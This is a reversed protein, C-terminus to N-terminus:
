RLRSPRAWVSRSQGAPLIFHIAAGGSALNEARVHGHHAQVISRVIALGLGMGEARTTFFSEFLLAMDEPKIGHGRDLVSVQVSEGHRETRLTICRAPAPTDAMADMANSVLNLLVQIIETPAGNVLPLDGALETAIRFQRRAAENAILSKCNLIAANLDVPEFRDERNRVLNRISVLVDSARRGDKDIDSLIDEIEPSSAGAALLLTRLTETHLLIGSLPQRLEHAISATLEGMQALRQLHGLQASDEQTKRQDTIDIASGIYGCFANDADFRPVGIDLIWRYQGDWRRLRYERQFPRRADFAANYTELCQDLDDPHIREAWGDDRKTQPSRGIFDLWVQNFFDCRKDANSMWILVPATNAMNRFRAESERLSGEARHRQEVLGAVVYVPLTRFILFRFLVFSGAGVPVSDFFIAKQLLGISQHLLPSHLSLFAFIPVGISAGAMGFRLAAWYLFPVPLFFRTDAFNLSPSDSWYALWTALLLGVLLMAAEIAGAINLPAVPPGKWFLWTLLAPAVVLQALADGIFGLQWALWYDQGLAHRLAAMPFAAVAAGLVTAGLALWERWSNFRGPNPAILRFIWAGALAQVGSVTMTGVRYWVPHLPFVNDTLRIPVTILLFLWWYKPRSRLLACLLLSNPIWLPSPSAGTRDGTFKFALFYSIAFLCLGAALEFHQHRRSLATWWRPAALITNTADRNSM